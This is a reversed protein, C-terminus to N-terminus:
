QLFRMLARIEEDIEDEGAGAWAVQWRIHRRVIERVRKVGVACQRPTLGEPAVEAYSAGDIHHRVFVMWMDGKGAQECERRAAELARGAIALAAQRLFAAEAGPDDGPLESALPGAGPRGGPSRRRREFQEMLYFRFGVILWARLPRESALWDTLYDDRGIRSIFFGNVVDDPEGIDGLRKLAAYRRLPEAYTSMITNRARDLNGAQVLRAISTTASPFQIPGSPM